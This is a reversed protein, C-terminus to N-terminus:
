TRQPRKKYKKLTYAIMISGIATPSLWVLLGPLFHINVVFFATCTAIYAGGMKIIHAALWPQKLPIGNVLQRFKLLDAVAQITCIGGFVLFLVGLDFIGEASLFNVCSLSIMALGCIAVLGAVIWDLPAALNKPRKFRVARVGSFAIYFSFIGVLLLFLLKDPKMTFLAITSILVGTMACFYIWGGRVHLRSGKKALMPVLGGFLATFGSIVHLTLIIKYIEM